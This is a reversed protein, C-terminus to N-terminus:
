TTSSGVGGRILTKGDGTLDYAVGIRPSFADKVTPTLDQYDYARRSDAHPEQGIQWKDQM